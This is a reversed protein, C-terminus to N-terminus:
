SVERGANPTDYRGGYTEAIICVYPTGKVYLVCWAVIEM